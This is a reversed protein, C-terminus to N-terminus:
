NVNTSQFVVEPYGYLHQYSINKDGSYMIDVDHDPDGVSPNMYRFFGHDVSISGTKSPMINDAVSSKQLITYYYLNPKVEIDIAYQKNAEIFIYPIVATYAAVGGTTQQVIRGTIVHKTVPDWLRISYNGAQPMRCGLKTIKGKVTSHFKFGAQYGPTAWFYANVSVKDKNFNLFRSIVYQPSPAPTPPDPDPFQPGDPGVNSDLVTANEAPAVAHDKESCAILSIALLGITLRAMVLKKFVFSYKM